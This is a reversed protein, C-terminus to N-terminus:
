GGQLDKNEKCVHLTHYQEADQQKQNQQKTKKRIRDYFIEIHM